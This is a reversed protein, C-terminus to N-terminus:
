YSRPTLAAGLVHAHKLCYALAAQLYRRQTRYGWAAEAFMHQWLARRLRKLAPLDAATCPSAQALAPITRYLLKRGRLLKDVNCSTNAGHRRYQAVTEDIYHFKYGRGILTLWFVKDEISDPTEDFRVGGDLCRRRFVATPCGIFNREAMRTFLEHQSRENIRERGAEVAVSTASEIVTGNADIVEHNAYVVDIDARRELIDIHTQLLHPHYRDDADLLAIYPSRTAELGRNRAAAAGRNPTRCYGIRRDGMASLLQELQLSTAADSGDNIIYAQWDSLTQSRLSALAQEVFALPTNYFPVIVDVTAM